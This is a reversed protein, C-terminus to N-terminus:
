LTPLRSSRSFTQDVMENFDEDISVWERDPRTRNLAENLIYQEHEKAEERTSFSVYGILEIDDTPHYTSALRDNLNAM